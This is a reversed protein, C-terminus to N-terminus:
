GEAINTGRWDIRAIGISLGRAHRLEGCQICEPPPMEDVAAHEQGRIVFIAREFFERVPEFLRQALQDLTADPANRCSPLWDPVAIREAPQFGVLELMSRNEEPAVGRHRLSGLMKGRVCAGAGREQ